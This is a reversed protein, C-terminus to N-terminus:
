GLRQALSDCPGIEPKATLLTPQRLAVPGPSWTVAENPVM